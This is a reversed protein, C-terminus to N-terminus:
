KINNSNKSNYRIKCVGVSQVAVDRDSNFVAQTAQERFDEKNM